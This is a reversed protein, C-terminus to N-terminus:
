GLKSCSTILVNPISGYHSIINEDYLLYTQKKNFRDESIREVLRQKYVKSLISRDRESENLQIIKESLM